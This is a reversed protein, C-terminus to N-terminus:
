YERFSYSVRSAPAAKSTYHFEPDFRGGLCAIRLGSATTMMGSKSMLFINKCIEGQTKAFQQIVADSLLIDGPMVYCEIPSLVHDFQKADIAKIKAFLDRIKGSAAGVTLVKLSM